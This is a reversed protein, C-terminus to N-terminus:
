RWVSERKMIESWEKVYEGDLAKLRQSYRLKAKAILRKQERKVRMAQQWQPDTARLQDREHSLRLILFMRANHAAELEALRDARDPRRAKDSANFADLAAQVRAHAEIYDQDSQIFMPLAKTM